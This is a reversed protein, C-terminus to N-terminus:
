QLLDQLREELLQPDQFADWGLKYIIWIIFSLYILNLVIGIIGLIKGATGNGASTYTDPYRRFEKEANRGLFFAIIGLPLGIVGYCICTLISLIGLVLSATGNSPTQKEM